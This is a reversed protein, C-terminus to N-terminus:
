PHITGRNGQWMGVQYCWSPFTTGAVVAAPYLYEGSLGNFWFKQTGEDVPTSAAVGEFPLGNFWYKQGGEPNVASM